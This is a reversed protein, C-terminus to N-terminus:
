RQASGADRPEPWIQAESWGLEAFDAARLQADGRRFFDDLQPPAVATGALMAHVQGRHHVQHQFLHALLRSRSGYLAGAGVGAFMERALLADTQRACYDILGQGAEAQAPWLVAMTRYPEEDRFRAQPDPHPAVGSADRELADLYHQDVLLLHNLTARISPFFSCRQAAFADQDLASCAKLLRHNAWVNNYAMTLFHHALSM